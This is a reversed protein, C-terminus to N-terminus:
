VVTKAARNCNKISKQHLTSPIREKKSLNPHSSKENTEGWCMAENFPIYIAKESMLDNKQFSDLMCLGNLIHLTKLPYNREIEGQVNKITENKM